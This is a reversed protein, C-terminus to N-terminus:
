IQNPILFVEEEKRDVNETTTRVNFNYRFKFILKM